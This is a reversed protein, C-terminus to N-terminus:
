ENLRQKKYKWYNKSHWLELKAKEAQRRLSSDATYNLTHIGGKLLPFARGLKKPVFAKFVPQPVNLWVAEITNSAFALPQDYVLDQVMHVALNGGGAMTYYSSAGARLNMELVKYQGQADLMFDFNALGTYGLANLFDQIKKTLDPDRVTAIANNNGVRAPHIDTLLVQGVSVFNAKGGKDSYTNAVRMVEEGGSIYEQLVLDGSYDSAYITALIDAAMDPTDAKYIKQKDPFQVRQYTDTDAPKIIVPFDPWRTRGEPLTQAGHAQWQKYEQKTLYASMPYPMGHQECLEYFTRKDILQTVLDLNPLPILFHEELSDMNEAVINTYFEITPVLLLKKDPFEKPLARLTELVMQPNGFSPYVRTEVIQSHSTEALAARGFALSRAAYREHISRALAYTGLGTGLFVPVFDQNGLNKSSDPATNSLVQRTIEAAQQCDPPTCNTLLNVVRSSLDRTVPLDDGHPDFGMAPETVGPFLLPRYWHGAFHGAERVAHIIREAEWATAAFFPFRVLTDSPRIASPIQAGSAGLIELYTKTARDRTKTNKGYQQLGKSIQTLMWLAPKKPEYPLKGKLEEPSIPPEFLGMNTLATRGRQGLGMPIRNLVANQTRYAMTVASRGLSVTPLKELRAAVKRGLSDHESDPNIWIAGGFRTSLLKEAGFSHVSFDALASGDKGRAIVGLSHASDEVLVLGAEKAKRALEASAEPAVIGFTHQLVLSKDPKQPSLLSPDIKLSDASIDLYRPSLGAATIPAIATACTFAQTVVTGSGEKKHLEDFVVLMGYRAKFVLHWDVPSTGTLAALQAKVEQEANRYKM